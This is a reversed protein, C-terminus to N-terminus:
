AYWSLNLSTLSVALHRLSMLSHNNVNLCGTLDITDLNKFSKYLGMIMLERISCWPLELQQINQPFLRNEMALITGNVGEKMNVLKLRVLRPLAEAMKVISDRPVHQFGLNFDTLNTCYSNIADLTSAGVKTDSLNLKQLAM